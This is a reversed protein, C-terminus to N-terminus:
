TGIRRGEQRLCAARAQACRLALRRKCSPAVFAGRPNGRHAARYNAAPAQRTRRRGARILALTKQILKKRRLQNM